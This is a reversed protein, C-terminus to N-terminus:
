VLINLIFGSIPSIVLSAISHGGFIPLLVLFLLMLNNQNTWPNTRLFIKSGDLPPIPLLNFLALNVNIVTLLFLVQNVTGPLATIRIIQAVITAIVLNTAPGALAILAMDRRPNKLNYPDFPAPKGWGFNTLLIFLTGIPDLHTIPNLTLRGMSRPTPDGLYDAMYCHAAEHLGIAIILGGFLLVFSAPDSFLVELM